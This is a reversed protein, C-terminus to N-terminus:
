CGLCCTASASAFDPTGLFYPYTSNRAFNKLTEAEAAVADSQLSASYPSGSQRHMRAARFHPSYSLNRSLDRKFLLRNTDGQLWVATARCLGQLTECASTM